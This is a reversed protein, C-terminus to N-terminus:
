TLFNILYSVYSLYTVAETTADNIMKLICDIRYMQYGIISGVALFGFSLVTWMATTRAKAIQLANSANDEARIIRGNFGDGNKEYLAKHIENIKGNAEHVDRKLQKFDSQTIFIPM